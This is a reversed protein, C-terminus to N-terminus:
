ESMPDGYEFDTIFKNRLETIWMTLAVMEFLNTEKNVGSQAISNSYMCHESLWYYVRHTHSSSM